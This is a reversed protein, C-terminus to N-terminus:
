SQCPGSRLIKRGASIELGKSIVLHEHVLSSKAFEASEVVSHM